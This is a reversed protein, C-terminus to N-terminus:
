RTVPEAPVGFMARMVPAAPAAAVTLLV